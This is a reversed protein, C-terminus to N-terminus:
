HFISFITLTNIGLFLNVQLLTIIKKFDNKKKATHLKIVAYLFPLFVAILLYLITFKYIESFNVIIILLISIPILSFIFTIKQTRNIGLVIPLTNVKLAYDKNINKINKISQQILSICFIYFSLISIINFALKQNADKLSFDLEFIVLIIINISILFVSILNRILPIKNLKKAYFFHLLAIGIFIFSLTPKEIKLCFLLGLAIGITNTIKYLKLTKEKTTILKKQNNIKDLFNTELTNIIFGATTILLISILLIYFSFLNLTTEISLSPLFLLKILLFVYIILLLNKWHILKFYVVSNM